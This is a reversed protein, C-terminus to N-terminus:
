VLEQHSFMYQVNQVKRLEKQLDTNPPSALQDINRVHAQARNTREGLPTLRPNTVRTKSSKGM